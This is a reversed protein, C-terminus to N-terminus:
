KLIREQIEDIWEQRLEWVPSLAEPDCVPPKISAPLRSGRIYRLCALLILAAALLTLLRTM